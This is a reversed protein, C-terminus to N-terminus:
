KSYTGQVNRNARDASRKDLWLQAEELKTITISTERTALEGTNVTKLRDILLEILSEVFVGEQRPM